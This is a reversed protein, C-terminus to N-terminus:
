KCFVCDAMVVIITLKKRVKNWAIEVSVSYKSASINSPKGVRFKVKDAGQLLWLRVTQAIGKVLGIAFDNASEHDTM